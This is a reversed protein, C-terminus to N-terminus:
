RRFYEAYSLSKRPERRDTVSDPAPATVDHRAALKKLRSIMVGMPTRVESGHAEEWLEGIRTAWSPHWSSAEVIEELAEMLDDSKRQEGLEQELNSVPIGTELTGGQDSEQIESGTTARGPPLSSSSPTEEQETEQESEREPTSNPDRREQEERDTPCQTRNLESMTDAGQVSLGAGIRVNHGGGHSMRDWAPTYVNPAGFRGSVKILGRAELANLCRRISRVTLRTQAALSDQTQWYSGSAAILAMRLLIHAETSSLAQRDIWAIRERQSPPRTADAVEAMPLQKDPISDPAM